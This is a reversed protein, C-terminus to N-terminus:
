KTLGAGSKSALELALRIGASIEGGLAVAMKVHEDSLHVNHRKMAKKYLTPKGVGKKQKKTKAM